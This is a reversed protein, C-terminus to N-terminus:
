AKLTAIVPNRYRKRTRSGCLENQAIDEEKYRLGKNEVDLTPMLKELEEEFKKYNRRNKGWAGVQTPLACISKFKLDISFNHRSNLCKLTCRTPDLDKDDIIINKKRTRLKNLLV